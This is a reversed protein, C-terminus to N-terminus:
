KQLSNDQLRKSFYGELHEQQLYVFRRYRIELFKNSELALAAGTQDIM